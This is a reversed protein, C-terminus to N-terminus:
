FTRQSIINVFHEWKAMYRMAEDLHVLFRLTVYGHHLKAHGKMECSDYLNVLMIVSRNASIIIDCWSLVQCGLRKFMDPLLTQNM